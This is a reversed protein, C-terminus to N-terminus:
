LILFLAADMNYGFGIDGLTEEGCCNEDEIGSIIGEKDILYEGNENMLQNTQALLTAGTNIFLIGILVKLILKKM